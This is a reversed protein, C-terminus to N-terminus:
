QTIWDLSDLLSQGLTPIANSPLIIDGAYGTFALANGVDNGSDIAGADELIAILDFLRVTGGIPVSGLFEAWAIGAAEQVAVLSTAPALVTGTAIVSVTAAKSASFGDLASIRPTIYSVIANLSVPDLPGHADAAVMLVRGPTVPDVSVALRSAQPVAQIAWFLFLGKTPNLSLTRLRGTCRAAYAADTEDDAGQTYGAGGPSTFVFQSGAVFSTAGASGKFFQLTANGVLAVAAAVIGMSMFAGGDISLSWRASGISGTVDIRAVWAHPDIPNAPVTAVPVVRGTSAGTATVPTFPPASPSITVGAFTTSLTFDSVAPDDNYSAGPAAAVFRMASVRGGQPCTAGTSNIYVNGTANAIIQVDGPQWTYPGANAVAALDFSMSTSSAPNFTLQYVTEGFLHLMDGQGEGLFGGAIMGPLDAALDNAIFSAVQNVHAMEVGAKPVWVTLAPFGAGQLSSLYRQRIEDLGEVQLLQQLTFVPASM